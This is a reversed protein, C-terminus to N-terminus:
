RVPLDPQEIVAPKYDSFDKLFLGNSDEVYPETKKENKYYQRSTVFKLVIGTDKSYLWCLKRAEYFVTPEITSRYVAKFDSPRFFSQVVREKIKIWM